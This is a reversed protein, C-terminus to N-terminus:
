LGEAMKYGEYLTLYQVHFVYPLLPGVYLFVEILQMCWHGALLTFNHTM